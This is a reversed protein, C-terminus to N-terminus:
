SKCSEKIISVKLGDPGREEVSYSLGKQPFQNEFWPPVHSCIVELRYFVTGEIFPLLAKKSSIEPHKNQLLILNLFYEGEKSTMYPATPVEEVENPPNEKVAELEQSIEELLTESLMDAEFIEYGLRELINYSLGRIPKGVVVRCDELGAIVTKIKERVAQLELTTDLFYVVEDVVRWDATEKSFVMLVAGEEFSSLENNNNLVVAIKNAM